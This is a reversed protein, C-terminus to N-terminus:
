RGENIYDAIKQAAAQVEKEELEKAEPAPTSPVKALNSATVDEQRNNLYQNGLQKQANVIQLAVQEASAGTEYRAKNIIEEFGAM